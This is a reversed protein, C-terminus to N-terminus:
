YKAATGHSYQLCYYVSLEYTFDVLCAGFVPPDPGVGFQDFHADVLHSRALMVDALAGDGEEELLLAYNGDEWEDESEHDESRDVVEACGLGGHSEEHARYGADDAAIQAHFDGGLGVHAGREHGDGVVRAVVGGIRGGEPCRETRSCDHTEQQSWDPEHHQLDKEYDVLAQDPRIPGIGLRECFRKSPLAQSAGCNGEEASHATADLRLGRVHTSVQHALDIV